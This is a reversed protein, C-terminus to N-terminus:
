SSMIDFASLCHRSPISSMEFSRGYPFLQSKNEKPCQRSTTMWEYNFRIACSWKLLSSSDYTVYGSGVTSGGSCCVEVSRCTRLSSSTGSPWRTRLRALPGTQVMPYATVRCPASRKNYLNLKSLIAPGISMSIMIAQASLDRRHRATLGVKIPTYRAGPGDRFNLSMSTDVSGFASCSPSFGIPGLLTLLKSRSINPLGGRTQHNFVIKCAPIKCISCNLATSICKEVCSYDKLTTPNYYQVLWGIVEV